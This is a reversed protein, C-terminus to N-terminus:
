EGASVSEYWPGLHGMGFPYYHAELTIELESEPTAPDDHLSISQDQNFDSFAL